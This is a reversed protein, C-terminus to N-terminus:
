AADNQGAGQELLEGLSTLSPGDNKHRARLRKLLGIEPGKRRRARYLNVKTQLNLWYEPTTSLVQALRLAMEATVDRRDNLLQNVTVRSVGLAAALQEQTVGSKSLFDERLVEGPSIPPPERFEPPM